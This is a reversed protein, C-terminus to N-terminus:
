ASFRELKLFDVSHNSVVGCVQDALIEGLVSAFKYGHGSLGAVFAVNEHAPHHDVIFHGDATMTYMCTMHHRRQTSVSPLRSQVFTEVLTNDELDQDPSLENPTSLPEGGAHNCVKVGMDDYAPIGYLLAHPEDFFFVPAQNSTSLPLPARDQAFWHMHKRVINLEAGHEHLIQGLTDGSWAGTTIVLGAASFEGQDTTVTVHEHGGQWSLVRTGTRVDAGLVISANVYATVGKEVMLYGAERELISTTGEDFRFYPFRARREAATLFEVDLAHAETAAKIGTIVESDASGTSLVGTQYYLQQESVAEIDRWLAYAHRLLPVYDPHEFYAQRIVRTAGHSSGRKHALAFQDIGLV